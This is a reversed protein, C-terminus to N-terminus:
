LQGQDLKKKEDGGVNGKKRFLAESYSKGTRKKRISALPFGGKKEVRTL